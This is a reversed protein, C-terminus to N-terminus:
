EAALSTGTVALEGATRQIEEMVVNFQRGRDQRAVPVPRTSLPADSLKAFMDSEQSWNPNYFPDNRIVHGWRDMMTQNEDYFRDLNAPSFDSGRSISEHHDAVVDAAYVLRWGARGLKLCLDVDNFAVRLKAEDFGGVERFAASRCLMCAATVASINQACIARAFYGPDDRDLGRFAHDAVGGVGLVVGAHQVTGNPYLLKAGVAAVKPDAQAEAVLRRLWDPQQVYVDNNLFLVFEADTGAVALNNLRSYNFPEEVRLVSVKENQCAEDLLLKTEVQVSWNDVLVIRFNGYDTNALLHQICARTVQAQDKFPIIVCVSPEDAFSWDLAYITTDRFPRVSAKLGRAALDALVAKRGAEVVYPKSGQSGATSTASKRWHYIIEPVHHVAAPPLARTLRLILDHDQAGDFRKDLPGVQRLLAADVVLFHCIYNNTWLMRPNFDPKLHPESYEGHEDIKDEDSYLLRAGTRNHAAVMLEVAEPALLDDHDFLAILSGTAQSIATNTAESIGKNKAHAVKRIRPDLTTFSAIASTLAPQRSGDDVIVLEWNRYSQARVSDVAATFYALDPKYTPCLISVLPEGEGTGDLKAAGRRHRTRVSLADRYQGAWRDYTALSYYDSILLERLQDKLAYVQTCLKEVSSYLVNLRDTASSPLFASTLPSGALVENEPATAFELTFSQGTRFSPPLDFSFGCHPECEHAEAVDKRLVDARITALRQGQHFVTLTVRGTKEGTRTDERIAWGRVTAGVLGDVNGFTRTVRFIFQVEELDGGSNAFKLPAGSRFRVALTHPAGDQFREPIQYRFGSNTAPLGHAATDPRPVSCRVSAAVQGDIVILLSAPVHPQVLDLAWGQVLDGVFSDVYGQLASAPTVVKGM